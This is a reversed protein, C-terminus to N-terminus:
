SICPTTCRIPGCPMDGRTRVGAVQVTTERHRRVNCGLLTPGVPSPMPLACRPVSCGPPSPAHRATPTGAPSGAARPAGGARAAPHPPAPPRRARGPRRCRAPAARSRATAAPPPSPRSDCRSPRSRAHPADRDADDPQRHPRREGHQHRLLQEDGAAAQQDAHGRGPLDNRHTRRRIEHQDVARQAVLPGAM